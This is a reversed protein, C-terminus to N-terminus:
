SAPQAVTTVVHQLMDNLSFTAATEGIKIQWHLGTIDRVVTFEQDAYHGSAVQEHIMMPADKAPLTKVSVPANILDPM